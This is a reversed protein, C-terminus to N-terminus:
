QFKWVDAFEAYSIFGNQDTDILKFIEEIENETFDTTYKLLIKKMEDLTITGSNDKDFIKFAEVVEEVKSQPISYIEEMADMFEHREITGSQNTDVKALFDEIEKQSSGRGLAKLISELESAQIHGNKDKDFVDFVENIMKRREEQTQNLKSSTEQLM